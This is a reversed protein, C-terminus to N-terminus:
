TDDQQITLRISAAEMEKFEEISSNLKAQDQAGPQVAYEKQVKM